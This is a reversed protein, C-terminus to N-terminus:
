RSRRSTTAARVATATPLCSACRARGTTPADSDTNQYTINGILAQAAAPTANASFTVVLDVGGSGGAFSGITTGGYTVNSGAIGIQGAGSGQNRIALVDEASDSGAVFSVTLTGTDFNTSDLDAVSADGNNSSSWRATAKQM